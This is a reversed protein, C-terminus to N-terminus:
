ASASLGEGAASDFDRVIDGEGVCKAKDAGAAKADDAAKDADAAKADNAAEAHARLETWVAAPYCERAQRDHTM